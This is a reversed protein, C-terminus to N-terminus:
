TVFGLRLALYDSRIISGKFQRLFCLMWILIKNKSWPHSANNFVFTSQRRMVKTRRPGAYTGW